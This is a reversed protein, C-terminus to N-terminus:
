STPSAATRARTCSRITRRSARRSTTPTSFRTDRPTPSDRHRRAHPYVRVLDAPHQRQGVAGRVCAHIGKSAARSARASPAASVAGSAAGRRDAGNWSRRRRTSDRVDQAPESPLRRRRDVGPQHARGAREHQRRGHVGPRRARPRDACIERIDDEFVGHTSPYTIMLCALRDRHEAAKKGCTPSISTATPPAPSSWWACAPWRQARRSQHRAGVGPDARRRSAADGRDRHYARIVMLGTFEGQAGSNPQLSVEAFGTIECLASELERFVQLTARPRTKRRSRTCAASASGHLRCCRRRRCEAEDHVFRASDDVHRSRPGEARPSRIYRM